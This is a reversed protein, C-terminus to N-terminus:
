LLIAWYPTIVAPEILGYDAVPPPPGGAVPDSPGTGSTKLTTWIPRLVNGLPTAVVAEVRNKGRVLYNSIDAKADTVDLPPLLKGNISVQLTHVVSGFDIIAGLPGKFAMSTYNSRPPWTFTTSYYGRGSVSQLGTIAQWSVLSQLSHTTNHKYAGGEINSMNSPPDWHEVILTWDQLTIPAITQVSGLTKTAGNSLTYSPASGSSSAGVKLVVSGNQLASVALISDSVGTLSTGPISPAEDSTTGFAPDFIVQVNLSGDDAIDIPLSSTGLPKPVFAVITTQNGALTLPILTSTKTRRYVLIPTQEGTWANFHYPIGTSGFEIVTTLGGEGRPSYIADNYVFFYDTKASSDRRHVTYLSTTGNLKVTPQIGIAALTSALSDYSATIHVNPLSAAQNLSKQSRAVTAPDNVGLYSTPIGGSFVIPLGARAFEVLKATGNLTLSDNARVVLAKFSQADPALIKNQVVANVLDFNDPSLYEYTYGLSGTLPFIMRPQLNRTGVLKRLTRRNTHEKLSM